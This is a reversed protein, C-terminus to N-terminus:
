CGHGDQEVKYTPALWLMAQYATRLDSGPIQVASGRAALASPVFKVM